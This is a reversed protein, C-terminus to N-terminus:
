ASLQEGPERDLLVCLEADKPGLFHLYELLQGVAERVAHGPHRCGCVKVEFL